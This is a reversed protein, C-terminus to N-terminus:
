THIFREVSIRPSCFGLLCSREISRAYKSFSQRQLNFLRIMQGIWMPYHDTFKIELVVGRELHSQWGTGNLSVDPANIAKFALQRDFTVRLRNHTDDEYAQRMYRIKIVPAANISNVYLMFQRLAEHDMTNSESQLSRGGSLLVNEVHHRNLRVRDKFCISNMRRKIEFFCPYDPDDTYSRIRLKFRNKHGDLSERCLQLNHSDLYMSVIPYFGGPIRSYKDLPMRSQIVGRIAQATAESVFYKMEYRSNLLSDAAPLNQSFTHFKDENIFSIVDSISKPRLPVVTVEKTSKSIDKQKDKIM